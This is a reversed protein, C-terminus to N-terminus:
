RSYADNGVFNGPGHYQCVVTCQYKAFTPNYFGSLGCGMRNTSPASGSIGDWIMQTYHGIPNVGNGGSGGAFPFLQYPGTWDGSPNFREKGWLSAASTGINASEKSCTKLLGGSSSLTIYINEGAPYGNSQYRHTNPSPGWAHQDAWGQAVAAIDDDWTLPLLPPNAPPLGVSTLSGNTRLANHEDLAANAFPSLQIPVISAAEYEGVIEEEASEDNVDGPM